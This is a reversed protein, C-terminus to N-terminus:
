SNPFWGPEKLKPSNSDINKKTKLILNINLINFSKNILKEIYIYIYINTSVINHFHEIHLRGYM